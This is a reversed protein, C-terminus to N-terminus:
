EPRRPKVRVTLTVGSPMEATRYLRHIALRFDSASATYIDVFTQPNRDVLPFWTSQVQVMFRHGARFTHSVDLLSFRMHTPKGPQFPEPSEYSNRFKGRFAEARILQQFGGMCVRHPNPQPDPYNEPYVDVLKIIFDADTGTTSVWLSAEVPGALTLDQELPDTQYALVDSRRAAFRQDEAMYEGDMARGPRAQCPVPMAPDSVYEDWSVDLSADPPEERLARAAHFRLTTSRTGAPPWHAETRWVNTGTEFVFVKPPPSGIGKLHYRFFPHEIRERYTLSTKSEFALCEFHDGDGELWGGHWWPGMALHIDANQSQALMSRYTEIAGFLNADDFWGGVILIAPKVNRYHPRPDRARWYADRSGHEMLDRWLRSEGGFYRTDVDVLPGLRLFFDYVDATDYEINWAMRQAYRGTRAMGASFAFSAALCFAGHRHFDDGIFWETTPAQPSVAILAPHADIAAQAAYFGPYSWGWAGVRGNHGEISRLLWEITDYADSSEDHDNGTKDSIYPRMDVFEGESMMRGRVDQYVFIYGDRIYRSLPALRAQTNAPSPYQGVGYPAVGFPTRFLLFPYTKSRDKPAYIATFLRTGDRMPIRHESKSYCERFAEAVDDEGAPEGELLSDEDQV